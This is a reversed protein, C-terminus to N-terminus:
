AESWDGIPALNDDLLRALWWLGSSLACLAALAAAATLLTRRPEHPDPAWSPRFSATVLAPPQQVVARAPRGAGGTHRRLGSWRWLQEPSLGTATTMSVGEFM